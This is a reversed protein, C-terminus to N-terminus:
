LAREIIRWLEIYANGWAGERFFRVPSGPQGIFPRLVWGLQIGVFGYLALWARLLVLHRRNREILPRYLRKLVVQGALSAIGFMFANFLIAQHYQDSSAYWVLTLPALSVLVLTLSAQAQIHARLAEHFDDRTGLLTNLVFFSPLSLCFTGLLLMPVKLASFLVQMERGHGLSYLGMATGYVMGLGVVLLGLARARYVGVDFFLPILPRTTTM